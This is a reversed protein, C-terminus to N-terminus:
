QASQEYLLLLDDLRARYIASLTSYYLWGDSSYTVDLACNNSLIKESEVTTFDPGSLQLARLLFGNYACFLLLDPQETTFTSGTPGITYEPWVGFVAVPDVFGETESVGMHTPWGYNRGAEIKNVEDFGGPGNETAYLSGTGPQFALGFVNRLGMAYVPSGPIPNDEPISGDPNYRLISGALNSPDQSLEPM